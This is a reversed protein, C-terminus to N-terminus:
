STLAYFTKEKTIDKNAIRAKICPELGISRLPKLFALKYVPTEKKNMFTAINGRSDQLARM